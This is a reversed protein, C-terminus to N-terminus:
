QAHKPVERRLRQSVKKTKLFYPGIIRDHMIACWVTVRQTYLSKEQAMYPNGTAWYRFNQKNVFGNMHFHEEDSMLILKTRRGFFKLFLSLFSFVNRM